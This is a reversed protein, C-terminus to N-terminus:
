ATAPNQSRHDSLHKPTTDRSYITLRSTPNRTPRQHIDIDHTGITTEKPLQRPRNRISTITFTGSQTLDSLPNSAPTRHSIQYTHLYCTCTHNPLLDSYLPRLFAPASTNTSILTWPRSELLCAGLCAGLKLDRSSAVPHSHRYRVSLRRYAILSSWTV